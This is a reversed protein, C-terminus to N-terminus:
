LGNKTQGRKWFRRLYRYLSIEPVGQEMCVKSIARFRQGADFAGGNALEVIPSILAWARDRCRRHNEPISSEERPAAYPDVTLVRLDGSEEALLLDPASIDYPMSDKDLIDILVVRDSTPAIWLVRETRPTTDATTWSILMNVLLEM